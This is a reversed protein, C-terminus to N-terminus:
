STGVMSVILKGLCSIDRQEEDTASIGELLQNTIM